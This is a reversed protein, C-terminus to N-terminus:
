RAGVRLRSLYLISQNDLDFVDWSASLTRRGALQSYEWCLVSEVTLISTSYRNRVKTAEVHLHCGEKWELSFFMWWNFKIVLCCPSYKIIYTRCINGPHGSWACSPVYVINLKVECSSKVKTYDFVTCVPCAFKTRWLIEFRALSLPRNFFCSYSRIDLNYQWGRITLFDTERLSDYKYNLTCGEFLDHSTRVNNMPCTNYTHIWLNSGCFKIKKDPIHYNRLTANRM